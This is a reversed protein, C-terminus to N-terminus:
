TPCHSLLSVCVIYELGLYFAQISSFILEKRIQQTTEPAM